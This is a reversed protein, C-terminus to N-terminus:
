TGGVPPQVVHGHRPSFLYRTIVLVVGITQAVTAGLWATIAATPLQWGLAFGYGIFVANALFMQVGVLWAAGKAYQRRLAIDQQFDQTWLHAYLDSSQWVRQQSVQQERLRRLVAQAEHSPTAPGDESADETV